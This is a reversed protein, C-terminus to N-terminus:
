GALRTVCRWTRIWAKGARAHRRVRRRRVLFREAVSSVRVEAVTAKGEMTFVHNVM